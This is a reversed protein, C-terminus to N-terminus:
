AGQACVINVPQGRQEGPKMRTRRPNVSCAIEGAGFPPAGARQRCKFAHPRQRALVPEGRKPGPEFGPSVRQCGQPDGALRPAAYAFAMAVQVQGIHDRVIAVHHGEVADLEVRCQAPNIHQVVYGEGHHVEVGAPAAVEGKAQEVAPEVAGAIM